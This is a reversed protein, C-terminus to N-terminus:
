MQTQTHASYIHTHANYINTHLINEIHVVFRKSLGVNFQHVLIM